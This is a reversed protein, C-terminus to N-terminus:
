YKQKDRRSTEMPLGIPIDVLITIADRHGRWLDDFRPFVTIDINHDTLSAALWGKRCGDVGVYKM